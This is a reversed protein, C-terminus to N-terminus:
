QHIKTEARANSSLQILCDKRHELARVIGKVLETKNTAQLLASKKEMYKTQAEVHAQLDNATLKRLDKAHKDKHETRTTAMYQTLALEAYEERKKAESLLGNYYSYM